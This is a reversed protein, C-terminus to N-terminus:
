IFSTMVRAQSHCVTSPIKQKMCLDLFYSHIRSDKGLEPHFTAAMHKKFQILQPKNQYSALIRVDSSSESVQPARIFTGSFPLPDFGLQLSTQFSHVQSGFANREIKIPLLAMTQLQPYDLVTEAMLILGACTGFVPFHRSFLKLYPFWNGEKLQLSISTSEGGPIILGHCFDLQSTEKVELTNAGLTHIMQIHKKYAGQLALVGITLHSFTNINVM